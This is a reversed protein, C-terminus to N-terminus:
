SGWRLKQIEPLAAETAERGLEILRDAKFFEAWLINGVNPTILVSAPTAKITTIESQLSQLSRMIVDFAKPLISFQSIQRREETRVSPTVNVAITIDVGRDLLPKVPIPNVVSGDILYRGQYKAPVFIGPISFSARVAKLVSGKEFVVEEGTNLDMAVVSLPIKLDSFDPDGVVELFLRSVRDGGLLGSKLKLFQIDALRMLGLKSGWKLVAQKIAGVPVGAAYASGILAGASTGSIMDIPIDHEELASLVGIHAMGRASGGGLAVGIKREDIDRALSGLSKSIEAQPYDLVFPRGTKFFSAAAEYDRPLVHFGKRTRALGGVGVDSLNLIARVEQHDLMILPYEESSNSTVFLVMNSLDIAEFTSRNLQSSTDILVYDYLDKLIGLILAISERGKFEEILLEMAISIVELEGGLNVIREKLYAPTVQSVSVQRASPIRLIDTLRGEKIGMDVVVAKKRTEKVLSAALNTAILTKGILEETSYVTIIPYKSRQNVQGVGRKERLKTSLLEVLNRLITVQGEIAKEFQDRTIELVEADIVVQVSTLRPESALLPMDGFFDGPSLYAFEVESGDEARKLVKVQGSTLIYFENSIEGEQCIRVGRPYYRRRFLEAIKELEELPVGKFIRNKQLLSILNEM